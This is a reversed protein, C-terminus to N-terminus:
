NVSKTIFKFGSFCYLPGKGDDVMFIFYHYLYSFINTGELLVTDKLIDMFFNGIIKLFNAGSSFFNSGALIDKGLTKRYFQIQVLFTKGVTM